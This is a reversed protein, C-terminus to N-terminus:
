AMRPKARESAMPSKQRITAKRMRKAMHLLRTWRGYNKRRPRMQGTYEKEQVEGPLSPFTTPEPNSLPFVFLYQILLINRSDRTYIEKGCNASHRPSFMLGPPSTPSPELSLM